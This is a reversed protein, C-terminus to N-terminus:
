SRRGRGRLVEDVVVAFAAAADAAQASPASGGGMEGPLPRGDVLRDEVAAVLESASEVLDVLGSRALRTTFRVQHDDVHEGLQASRPVVIPQHGHRRAESITTPGGHTIIARSRGMLDDLAQHDLFATGEALEPARSTGHQVVCRVRRDSRGRLWDDIWGVLRDFPHKDTGTVVLVLPLEDDGSV